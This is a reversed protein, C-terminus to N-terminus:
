YFPQKTWITPGCIGTLQHYPVIITTSPVKSSPVGFPNLKMDPSFYQYLSMSTWVRTCDVVINDYNNYAHSNDYDYIIINM